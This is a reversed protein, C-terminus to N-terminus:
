AETTCHGTNGCNRFEPPPYPVSVRALTAASTLLMLAMQHRIEEDQM